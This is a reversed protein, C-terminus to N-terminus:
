VPRMRLPAFGGFQRHQLRGFELEHDVELGRPCEAPLAALAARGRRRPSRIPRRSNMVSSPPAAAHPRQRRARLLGVIGTTPKRLPREGAESASRTAANRRASLSFPKELALIDRDLETPRVPPEIVQRHQRSLQDLPFHRHQEGAGGINQAAGEPHRGCGDRDDEGGANIRDGSVENCADVPRATIQSPGCDNRASHGFRSSTNRSSM